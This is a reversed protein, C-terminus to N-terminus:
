RSAEEGIPLRTEPYIVQSNGLQFDKGALKEYGPFPLALKLAKDAKSSIFLGLTETTEVVEVGPHASQLASSGGICAMLVVTKVSSAIEFDEFYGRSCPNTILARQEITFGRRTLEDCFKEWIGEGGSGSARVCNNCSIVAIPKAPDLDAVIDDIPRSRTLVGM